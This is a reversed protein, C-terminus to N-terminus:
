HLNVNFEGMEFMILVQFLMAAMDANKYNPVMIKSIEVSRYLVYFSRRFLDWKIRCQISYIEVQTASRNKLVNRDSQNIQPATAQSEWHLHCQDNQDTGSLNLNLAM